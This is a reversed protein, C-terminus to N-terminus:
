SLYTDNIQSQVEREKIGFIFHHIQYFCKEKEKKKVALRLDRSDAKVEGYAGSIM